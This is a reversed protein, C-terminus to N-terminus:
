RLTSIEQPLFGQARRRYEQVKPVSPALMSYALTRCDQAMNWASAQNPDEMLLPLYVQPSAIVQLAQHVFESVRVDLCQLSPALSDHKDLYAPSTASTLYRRSFDLYSPSCVDVGEADRVLDALVESSRQNVGYAFSLLSKVQLKQKIQSPSYAKIGATWEADQFFVILTEPSYDYLLLDTDSSFIISRPEQQAYLACSDDAEGPVVQTRSAFTSSALAERLSPALFAHSTSGLYTPIPCATTPYSARLQQVRKNNQETRSM